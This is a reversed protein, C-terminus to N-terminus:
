FLKLQEYSRGLLTEESQRSEAQQMNFTCIALTIEIKKGTLNIDFTFDVPSFM